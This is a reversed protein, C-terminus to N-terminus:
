LKNKTIREKSRKKKEKQKRNINDNRHSRNVAQVQM